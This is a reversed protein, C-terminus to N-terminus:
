DPSCRGAASARSNRPRYFSVPRMLNSIDGAFFTSQTQVLHCDSDAVREIGAVATFSM